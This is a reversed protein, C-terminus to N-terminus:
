YDIEKEQEDQEGKYIYKAYRMREGHSDVGEVMDTEIIYGAERLQFIRAGLRYCGFEQLAELPTISGFEKLRLLVRLKDPIKAGPHIERIAREYEQVKSM